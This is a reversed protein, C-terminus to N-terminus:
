KMKSSQSSTKEKMNLPRSNSTPHCGRNKGKKGRCASSSIRLPQRNNSELITSKEAGSITGQARRRLRLQSIKEQSGEMEGESQINLIAPLFWTHGCASKRDFQDRDQCSVSSPILARLWYLMEDSWSGKRSAKM